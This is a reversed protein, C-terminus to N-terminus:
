RTRRWDEVANDYGHQLGVTYGVMWAVSGILAMVFLQICLNM